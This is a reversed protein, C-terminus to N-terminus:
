LSFTSEYIQVNSSSLICHGFEPRTEGLPQDALTVVVVAHEEGSRYLVEFVRNQEQACITVHEDALLSKRRWRKRIAIVNRYFDRVQLEGDEVAGIKASQFAEPSTPLLGSSWDHQPYERKRGDVVSQQLAPDQFDVFFGFSNPSAFEEGMFLMPISPLLCLLAAAAKSQEISTLQHLRQGLPHNGIFDHNQISYVLSSTDVRETVHPRFRPKALTGQYVFGCELVQELDSWPEYQRHSLQEGPRFVAFVSHLFDDCWQADFGIGGQRADAVIEPDYVNSEAIMIVNQSNAAQWAAVRDCIEALIHNSGDDKTCHAADIRLGDLHFEELWYIANGIFFERVETSHDGDFNPAAGWATSHNESLYPGFEALYNGEPGFHNYVVDLIVGLGIAHAADVFKRFDEPRGYNASPAFFNVGDYGWNWRGAATAIPMLEIATVGLEALEGLRDIAALFTGEQTFAGVHMEYIILDELTIGKWDQDNWDFSPDVVESLGHVGEPQFRSVPDARPDGGDISFGYPTGPECDFELEWYGQARSFMKQQDTSPIVLQLDNAYPAWVRFITKGNKSPIAGLQFQDSM